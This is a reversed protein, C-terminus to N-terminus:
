PLSWDSLNTSCDLHGAGAHRSRPRERIAGHASQHRAPINKTLQSNEYNDRREDEWLSRVEM